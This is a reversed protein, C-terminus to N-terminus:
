EIENKWQENEHMKMANNFFRIRLSEPLNEYIWNILEHKWHGCTNNEFGLKELCGEACAKNELIWFGKRNAIMNSSVQFVKLSLVDIKRNINQELSLALSLNHVFTKSSVFITMYPCPKDAIVASINIIASKKNRLLMSPILKRTLLAVPFCNITIMQYIDKENQQEFHDLDYKGVNNVVISIDLGKLKEYLIDFFKQRSAEKFDVGINITRINSNVVRLRKILEENKEYNRSLLVLNFGKSALELCFGKGLGDSSGTVIAWSNKGYRDLLNKPTRFFNRYIIKFFTNSIKALKFLMIGLFILLLKQKIKKGHRLLQFITVM